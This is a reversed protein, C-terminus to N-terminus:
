AEGHHAIIRAADAPNIKGKPLTIHAIRLWKRFTTASIGYYNAFQTRTQFTLPNLPM